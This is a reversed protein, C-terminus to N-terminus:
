RVLLDGFLSQLSQDFHVGGSQSDTDDTFDTTKQSCPYPNLNLALNLNLNLNLNLHFLLHFDLPHQRPGFPAYQEHRLLRRPQM